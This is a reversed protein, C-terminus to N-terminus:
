WARSSVVCNRKTMSSRQSRSSKCLRLMVTPRTTHATRPAMPKYVTAASALPSRCSCRGIKRHGPKPRRSRGRHKGGGFSQGFYAHEAGAQSRACGHDCILCSSQNWRPVGTHRARMQWREPLLPWPLRHLRQQHCICRFLHSWGHAIEHPRHASPLALPVVREDDKRM